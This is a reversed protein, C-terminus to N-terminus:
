KERGMPELHLRESLPRIERFIAVREGATLGEEQDFYTRSVSIEGLAELALRRAEVKVLTQRVFNRHM